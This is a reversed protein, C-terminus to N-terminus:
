DGDLGDPAVPRPLPEVERLPTAIEFRDVFNGLRVGERCGHFDAGLRMVHHELLMFVHVVTRMAVIIHAGGDDVDDGVSRDATDTITIM